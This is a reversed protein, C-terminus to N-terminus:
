ASTSATESPVSEKEESKTPFHEKLEKKFEEASHKPADEVAKEVKGHEVKMYKQTDRVEKDFKHLKEDFEQPSKSWQKIAEKVKEAQERTEKLGKSAADIEADFKREADDAPHSKSASLEMLTAVKKAEPSSEALEKTFGHFLAKLNHLNSVEAAVGKFELELRDLKEQLASEQRSVEALLMSGAQSAVAEGEASETSLTAAIESLSAATSAGTTLKHKLEAVKAQLASTRQMAAVESLPVVEPSRAADVYNLAASVLVARVFVAM